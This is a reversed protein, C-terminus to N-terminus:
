VASVEDPLKSFPIEQPHFDFENDAVPNFSLALAKLHKPGAREFFPQTIRSLTNWKVGKVPFHLSVMKPSYM